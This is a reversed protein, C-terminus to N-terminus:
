DGEPLGEKAMDLRLQYVQQKPVYISTGGDRLEYAIGKEGIKETIKSAEGPSLEQYLLRMDPRRAWHVLLAGVIGFTLIVAVLLGRQILGIKQWIAIIKQLYNVPAKEDLEGLM